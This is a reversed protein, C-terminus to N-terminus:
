LYMESMTEVHRHMGIPDPDAGFSSVDTAFPHQIQGDNADASNVDVMMIDDDSLAANGSPGGPLTRPGTYTSYYDPRFIPVGSYYLGLVFDTLSPSPAERPPVYAIDEYSEYITGNEHWFGRRNVNTVEYYTVGNYTFDISKIGAAEQQTLPM